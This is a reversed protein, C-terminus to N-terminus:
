ICRAKFSLSSSGCSCGARVWRVLLRTVGEEAGGGESSVEKVLEVARDFDDQASDLQGRSQYLQARHMCPLFWKPALRIAESFDGLAEVVM